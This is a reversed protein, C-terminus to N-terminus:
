GYLRRKASPDCEHRSRGQVSTRFTMRRAVVPVVRENAPQRRGEPRDRALPESGLRAAHEVHQQVGIWVAEVLEV